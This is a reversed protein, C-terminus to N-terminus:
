TGDDDGKFALALLSGGPFPNTGNQLLRREISCILGLSRNLCPSLHMECVEQARLATHTSTSRFLRSVVLLPLLFTILSTLFVVKFGTAALKNRLEQRTYRRKHHSEIDAQSWLWPHQPVTILLGGNPQLARHIEKLVQEDEDIHELVDFVGVMEFESQFPLRRADLQLFDAEPNRQRAIRLTDLSTDTGTIRLNPRSASIGSLVFGNGCGIELLNKAKPLYRNIARIILENRDLYWFHKEEISAWESLVEPDYHEKSELLEPALIPFGEQVQPQWQCRPCLWFNQELHSFCNICFRMEVNNDRACDIAISFGWM